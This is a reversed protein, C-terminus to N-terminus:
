CPWNWNRSYSVLHALAKAEEIVQDLADESGQGSPGPAVAETDHNCFKESLTKLEGSGPGDSVSEQTRSPTEPPKVFAGKDPKLPLSGASSPATSAASAKAALAEVYGEVQYHFQTADILFRFM